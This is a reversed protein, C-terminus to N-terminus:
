IEIVYPSTIDNVFNIKVTFKRKSDSLLDSFSLGLSLHESFLKELLGLGIDWVFRLNTLACQKDRINWYERDRNRERNENEENFHSQYNKSEYM